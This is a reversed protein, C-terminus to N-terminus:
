SSAGSRPEEATERGEKGGDGNGDSRNVGELPVATVMTGHENMEELRCSWVLKGEHVTVDPCADCMDQRGDSEINVPQIIMMTQIHAPQFLNGPNRFIRGVLRGFIRRMTRDMLGTVFSVSKGRRCLKPEAYSLYAGHRLHNYSQVIEMFRPSVYGVTEGGQIIRNAMLWKFSRPNATGNLYAAPEYLPDAGRIVEVVDRSHLQDSGGWESEKYTEQFSVQRGGAFFSFDGALVPSRFLIFVMTHVIDAHKGAWQVMAPVEKLTKATITANFSCAIDGADALMRAYHLRVENLEEESRAKVRPRKQSTDVHFTFGFVGAKKLERLLPEELAVGNSNIIPKWGMERVMNVIEVIEPHLLPEGGAISICDSKRFSRFVELDGRVEDLSKHRATDKRYCGECRLNCKTTPELLSIINDTLSWPLRYYRRHDLKETM